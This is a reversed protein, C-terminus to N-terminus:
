ADALKALIATVQAIEPDSLIVRLRASGSAVIDAVAAEIITKAAATLQVPKVRRDANDTLRAVMGRAELQHLIKAL